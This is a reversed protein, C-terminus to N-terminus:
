VCPSCLPASFPVRVQVKDRLYTIEVSKNILENHSSATESLLSRLRDEMSLFEATEIVVVAIGDDATCTGVDVLKPGEFVAVDSGSAQM